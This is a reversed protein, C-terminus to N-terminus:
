WVGGAVSNTGINLGGSAEELDARVECRDIRVSEIAKVRIMSASNGVCSHHWLADFSIGIRHFMKEATCRIKQNLCKAARM